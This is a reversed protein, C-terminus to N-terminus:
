ADDKIFFFELLYHGVPMNLECSIGGPYSSIFEFSNKSRIDKLRKVHTYMSIDHKEKLCDQFLIHARSSDVM